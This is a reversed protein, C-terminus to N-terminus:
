FCFLWLFVTFSLMIGAYFKIAFVYLILLAALAKFVCKRTNSAVEKSAIEDPKCFRYSFFFM